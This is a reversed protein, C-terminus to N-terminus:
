ACCVCVHRLICATMGQAFRQLNWRSDMELVKNITSSHEAQTNLMCVSGGQAKALLETPVACCCGAAAPVM